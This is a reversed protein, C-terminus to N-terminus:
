LPMSMPVDDTSLTAQSVGGDCRAHDYVIVLDSQLALVAGHKDSTQSLVEAGRRLPKPHFLDSPESPTQHQYEGRRRHDLVDASLHRLDRTDDIEGQSIAGRQLEVDEFLRNQLGQVPPREPCESHLGLAGELGERQGGRVDVAVDSMVKLLMQASGYVQICCLERYRDLNERMFGEEEEVTLSSRSPERDPHATGDRTQQGAADVRWHRSIAQQLAAARHHEQM